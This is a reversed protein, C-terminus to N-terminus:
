GIARLLEVAAAGASLLGVVLAALAKIANWVRRRASADAHTLTAKIADETSFAFGLAALSLVAVAALKMLTTLWTWPVWVGLYHFLTALGGLFLAVALNENLAKLKVPWLRFIEVLTGVFGILGVIGSLVYVVVAGWHQEFGVYAPIYALIASWMLLAFGVGVGYQKKGDSQSM